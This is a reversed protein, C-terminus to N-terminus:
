RVQSPATAQGARFIAYGVLAWPIGALACGIEGPLIRATVLPTSFMFLTGVGLPSGAILAIGCWEILAIGCWQPLVGASITVVGLGAISVSAALAGGVLLAIAVSTTTPALEGAFGGVVVMAVGAFAAVSTFLGLKGYHGKQIVHLTAIAALVGVLLMTAVPNEYHGKQLAEETFNFSVSSAQLVHLSGLTTAALGGAMAALGGLRIVGTRQVNV